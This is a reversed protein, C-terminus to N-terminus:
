KKIAAIAKKAEENLLDNDEEAVDASRPFDITSADKLVSLAPKAKPGMSGLARCAGVLLPINPKQIALGDSLSRQVFALAPLSKTGFNALAEFSAILSPLDGRRRKEMKDVINPVVNKHIAGIRGIAEVIEPFKHGETHMMSILLDIHEKALPGMRGTAWAAQQRVMNHEDSHEKYDRLGRTLKSICIKAAPGIMGLARVSERRVDSHTDYDENFKATLALAVKTVEKSPEANELIQGLAKAAASRNREYQTGKLLPILSPVAVRSASGYEGLVQAAAFRDNARDSKLIPILAEVIKPHAEEPAERLTRIARMQSGRNSNKIQKIWLSLPKRKIIVKEGQSHVLGAPIMFSMVVAVVMLKHINRRM